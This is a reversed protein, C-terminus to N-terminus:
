GFMGAVPRAEPTGFEVIQDAVMDGIENSLYFTSESPRFVGFTDDGDGDWDGVVFRDGAVGFFSEVDAVKTANENTIYVYGNSPRFMGVTDIGDGDWDGAFPVDGYTGFYFSLDAPGEVNSNSLYFRAEAPRYVGVTDIGDGDWDGCVPVDQPIGYYFELDAFGFDNSNRLYMYGDSQRYLGPTDLGDGNWDCMVAEDLPVGYYFSEDSGNPMRLTWFGSNPAQVAVREGGPDGLRAYGWGFTNNKGSGDALQGLERRVDIPTADPHHSLYIAALGAVFPAAASTGSFAGAQTATSVRDPGVLDPKVRGDATPGRSSYFEITGHDFYPVAGVSIVREVANPVLLSSAPTQLGLEEVVNTFVDYTTGTAPNAPDGGVSFGFQHSSSDTNVWTIVELPQHWPQSQFAESCDLLEVGGGAPELDWLCLDLDRTPDTWNLVIQFEDGPTALFDNIEVSGSLESWGDADADAYAAAFHQDAENGAANVWVIGADIARNAEADQEATGDFPGVSWGGSLNIIDVQQAIFYDVAEGLSDADANVFVLDAGPAVDHIIEAVATGHRNTGRELGDPHFSATTVATPLETGLLDRYGSFSSDLIGITVDRGTWGAGHWAEVESGTVGESTVTAEWMEVQIELGGVVGLALLERLESATGTVTGATASRGAGWFGGAGGGLVRATVEVTPHVAGLRDGAVVQKPPRPTDPVPPDARAPEPGALGAALLLAALLLSPARSM